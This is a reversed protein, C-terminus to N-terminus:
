CSAGDEFTAVLMAGRSVGIVSWSIMSLIVAARRVAGPHSSMGTTHQCSHEERKAGVSSLIYLAQKFIFQEGVVPFM